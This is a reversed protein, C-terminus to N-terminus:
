EIKQFTIKNQKQKSLYVNKVNILFVLRKHHTKRNEQKLYDPNGKWLDLVLKTKEYDVWYLTEMAHAKIWM